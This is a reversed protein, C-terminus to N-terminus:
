KKKYKACLANFAKEEDALTPLSAVRLGEMTNVLHLTFDAAKDHTVIVSQGLFRFQEPFGPQAISSIELKVSDLNEVFTQLQPLRVCLSRLTPRGQVPCVDSEIGTPVADTKFLYKFAFTELKPNSEDLGESVLSELETTISALLQRASAIFTDSYSQTFQPLADNSQHTPASFFAGDLSIGAFTVYPCGLVFKNFEGKGHIRNNAFTGKYIRGDALTLEGPGHPVEDENFLGEYKCGSNFLITGTLRKGDRFQGEFLDGSSNLYRGQGHPVIEPKGESDTRSIYSGQYMCGESMQFAGINLTVSM